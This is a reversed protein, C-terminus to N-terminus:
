LAGSPKDAIFDQFHFPHCLYTNGIKNVLKRNVMTLKGNNWQPYHEALILPMLELHLMYLAYKETKM